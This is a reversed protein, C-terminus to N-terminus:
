PLVATGSPTALVPSQIHPIGLVDNGIVVSAKPGIITQPPLTRVIGISTISWGGIDVGRPTNNNIKLAVGGEIVELGIRPAAVVASATASFLPRSATLAGYYSVSVTYSGPYRYHYSFPTLDRQIYTTGDGMNWYFYGLGTRVTESNEFVASYEDQVGQLVNKPVSVVLVPKKPASVKISATKGTGTTHAGEQKEDKETDSPSDDVADSSVANAAGPTGPATIWTNGNWQMTNGTGSEGAPWGTAFLASSVVVGDRDQLVLDEGTNRLGSAGFPGAEDNIGEIADPASATTREVLMYSHPAITKTLTFLIDKEGKVLKWGALSVPEEADNYLEVWESYQSKVTGMWAIESIRVDAFAVCPLLLAGFFLWIYKM